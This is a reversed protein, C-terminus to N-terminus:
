PADSDPPVPSATESPPRVKITSQSKFERKVKPWDEIIGQLLTRDQKWENYPGDRFNAFRGIFWRVTAYLQAAFQLGPFWYYVMRREDSPHLSSAYALWMGSQSFLNADIERSLWDAQSPLFSMSQHFTRTMDWCTAVITFENNRLREPISFTCAAEKGMPVGQISAIPTVGSIGKFWCGERPGNPHDLHVVKVRVGLAPGTGINQVKFKYEESEKTVGIMPRYSAKLADQSTRAMKYTLYTYILVAATAAATGNNGYTLWHWPHLANYWYPHAAWNYADVPPKATWDIM